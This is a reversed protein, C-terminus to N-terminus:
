FKSVFTMLNNRVSKNLLCITIDEKNSINSVNSNKENSVKSNIVLKREKSITFTNLLIPKNSSPNPQGSLEHRL